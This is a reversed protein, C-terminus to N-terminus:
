KKGNFNAPITKTEEIIEHCMIVTNDIIIALYKGNECSNASLNWICDKECMHHKKVNAHVSIMIRNEIQIVNEGMLNVNVNAHNHKTLIKSENKGTIMNFVHISFDKTKNPVCVKNCLCYSKWCM